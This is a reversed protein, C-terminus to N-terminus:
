THIQTLPSSHPYRVEVWTDILTAHTSLVYDIENMDCGKINKYQNIGVQCTHMANNFGMIINMRM